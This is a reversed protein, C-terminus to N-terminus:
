VLHGLHALAEQLDMLVPQGRPAMTAQRGQQDQSGRSDWPAPAETRDQYVPSDLRAPPGLLDRLDMQGQPAPLVLQDEVAQLDLLDPHAM